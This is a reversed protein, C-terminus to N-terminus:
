QGYPGMPIDGQPQITVIGDIQMNGSFRAHGNVVLAEGASSQDGAITGDPDAPVVTPNASDWHKNELTTQGNKLVTVANARNAADTGNGIEFLPDLEFWNQNGDNTNDGDDIFTSDGINFRGLSTVLYSEALSQRGWATSFDANAYGNGWATSFEGNANSADGWATGGFGDASSWLGWVTAADATVYSGEGWATSYRGIVSNNAGWKISGVGGTSVITGGRTLSKWATGDYGEFDNNTADYRIAGAAPIATLIDVYDGLLVPGQIQVTEENTQLDTMSTHTGLAIRGNKLVTLANSPSSWGNGIELLPDLDVWNVDGDNWPDGDDIFTFGGINEYGFATGIFSEARSSIGWATSFQASATSVVGWTTSAHGNSTNSDGWSTSAYGSAINYLGWSTSYEGSATNNWGWAMSVEGVNNFNWHAMAGFDELRGARFAGKSPIWMLRDGAGTPIQNTADFGAGEGAWIVGNSEVKFGTKVAPAIVSTDEGITLEDGVTADGEVTLDGDATPTATVNLDGEVVLTDAHSAPIAFAALILSLATYKICTNMAQFPNTQSHQKILPDLKQNNMIFSQNPTKM